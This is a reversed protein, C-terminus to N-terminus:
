KAAFANTRTMSAPENELVALRSRTRCFRGKGLGRLRGEAEQMGRMLFRGDQDRLYPDLQEHANRGSAVRPMNVEISVVLAGPKGTGQMPVPLGLDEIHQFDAIQEPNVTLV